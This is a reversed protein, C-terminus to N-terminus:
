ECLRTRMKTVVNYTCNTFVFFHADLLHRVRDDFRHIELAFVREVGSACVALEPFRSGVLFQKREDSLELECRKFLTLEDNYRKDPAKTSPTTAKSSDTFHNKSFKSFALVPFFVEIAYVEDRSSSTTRYPQPPYLLCFHPWRLIHLHYLRVAIIEDSDLVRSLNCHLTCYAAIGCALCPCSPLIM